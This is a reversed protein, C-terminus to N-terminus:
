PSVSESAARWHYWRTGFYPKDGMGAMAKQPSAMSSLVMTPLLAGVLHPAMKAQETEEGAVETRFAHLEQVPTQDELAEFCNQVLGLSKKM